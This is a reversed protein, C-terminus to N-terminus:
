FGIESLKIDDTRILLNNPTRCVFIFIFTSENILRDLLCFCIFIYNSFSYEKIKILQNQLDYLSYKFQFGTFYVITRKAHYISIYILLKDIYYLFVLCFTSISM